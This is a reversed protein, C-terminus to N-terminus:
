MISSWLILRGFTELLAKKVGGADSHVTWARVGSVALLGSGRVNGLNLAILMVISCRFVCVLGTVKYTSLKGLSIWPRLTRRM